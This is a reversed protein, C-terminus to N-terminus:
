RKMGEATLFEDGPAKCPSGDDGRRMSSTVRSFEIMSCGITGKGRPWIFFLIGSTLLHLLGFAVCKMAPGTQRMSDLSLGHQMHGGAVVLVGEVEGVGSWGVLQM